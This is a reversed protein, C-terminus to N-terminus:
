HGVGGESRIVQLQYRAPVILGQPEPIALRSFRERDQANAGPDAKSGSKAGVALVEAAWGVHLNQKPVDLQEAAVADQAAVRAVNIIHCETRVAGLDGRRGPIAGNAKPICGALSLDMEQSGLRRNGGGYGKARIAFLKDGSDSVHAIKAAS